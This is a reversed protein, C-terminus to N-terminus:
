YPLTEWEIYKCEEKKLTEGVKKNEYWQKTDYWVRLFKDDKFVLLNPLQKKMITQGVYQKCLNDYKKENKENIDIMYNYFLLWGSVMVIEIVEGIYNFDGNGANTIIKITKWVVFLGIIIVIIQERNMPIGDM